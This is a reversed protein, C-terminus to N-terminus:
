RGEGSVIRFLAERIMGYFPWPDELTIDNHITRGFLRLCGWQCRGRKLSAMFHLLDGLLWRYRVDLEYEDVRPTDLGLALQHYLLPFDVGSAIALGISGWFRPNVEMFIPRGSRVDEKYEVMAVGVFRMRQLLEISRASLDDDRRSMCFCSPGGTTPYERLRQHGFTAMPRSDSDMLVSVGLGAGDAPIREQVMIPGFAEGTAQCADALDSPNEVFRVGRSGSGRRPKVVAPGQWERALQEIAGPSEVLVTRPTPIGLERALCVAQWKDRAANFANMSPLLARCNPMWADPNALCLELTVDELPYLVAPAFEASVEALTAIFAAPDSRYDSCQRVVRCHKSYGCM